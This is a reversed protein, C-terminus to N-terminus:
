GQSRLRRYERSDLAAVSAPALRQDPLQDALSKQISLLCEQAQMVMERLKFPEEVGISREIDILKLLLERIRM